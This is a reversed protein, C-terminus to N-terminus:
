RWTRAAAWRSGSLFGPYPKRCLCGDFAKALTGESLRNGRVLATLLKALQESDAVAIAAPDSLLAKGQKTEAWLAWDFGELVWGSRYLMDVLQEGLESQAFWPASNCREAAAVPDGGRWEGFTAQRARLRPAFAALQRLRDETSLDRPM